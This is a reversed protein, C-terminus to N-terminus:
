SFSFPLLLICIFPAPGSLSWGLDACGDNTPRGVLTTKRTWRLASPNAVIGGESLFEIVASQEDDNLEVAFLRM